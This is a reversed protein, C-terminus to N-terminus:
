IIQATCFNRENGRDRTEVECFATGGEKLWSPVKYNIATLQRSYKRATVSRNGKIPLYQSM